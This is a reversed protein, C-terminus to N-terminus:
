MALRGERRDAPVFPHPYWQDTATCVAVRAAASLLYKKIRFIRVKSSDWDKAKLSADENHMLLLPM